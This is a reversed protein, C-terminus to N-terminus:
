VIVDMKFSLPKGYPLYNDIITEISEKTESPDFKDIIKKLGQHIQKTPYECIIFGIYDKKQSLIMSYKGLNIEKPFIEEGILKSTLTAIATAVAATLQHNVQIKQNFEGAYINLGSTNFIQISYLRSSGYLARKGGYIMGIAILLSGIATSVLELHLTPKFSFISYIVYFILSVLFALIAGFIMTLTAKKDKKDVILHQKILHSLFVFTAFLVAGADFIIWIIEGQTITFDLTPNYSVNYVSDVFTLGIAGGVLLFIGYSSFSKFAENSGLSNAFLVAAIMALLNTLTSFRSLHLIVAENMPSSYIIQALDGIIWLLIFVTMTLFYFVASSKLELQRSIIIVIVLLIVAISISSYILSLINM